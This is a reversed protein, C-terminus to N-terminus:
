RRDRVVVVLWSDEVGGEVGGELSSRHIGDVSQRCNDLVLLRSFIVYCLVFFLIVIDRVM